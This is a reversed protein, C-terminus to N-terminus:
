ELFEKVLAADFEIDGHPGTATGEIVLRGALRKPDDVRATLAELPRTGSYQLHQDRVSVWYNLRPSAGIDVTMGERVSGDTCSMTKCERLTTGLDKSTLILRRIIKKPEVADPGRVLYAHLLTVTETKYALTGKAENKADGGYAPAGPGPVLAAAFVLALMAARPRPNELDQNM